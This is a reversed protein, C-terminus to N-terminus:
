CGGGGYVWGSNLSCPGVQFGSSLSEVLGGVVFLVWGLVVSGVYWDLWGFGFDSLFGSFSILRGVLVLLFCHPIVGVDLRQRKSQAEPAVRADGSWCAYWAEDFVMDSGMWEEDLV